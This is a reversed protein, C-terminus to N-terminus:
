KKRGLATVPGHLLRRRKENKGRDFPPNTRIIEINNEDFWNKVEAQTHHTAIPASWWDFMHHETPLLNIHSYVKWYFRTRLRGGTRLFCAINAMFRSFEIQKEIGMRTTRNRILSDIYEYSSRGVGYVHGVILGGVALTGALSAFAKRANGTHMLVGISFIRDFIENKFPLRFLDGRIIHVNHKDRMHDFASHVGWGLDIGIVDAGTQSVQNTFRGNGCGGDLVLMGPGLHNKEFLSKSWFAAKTHEVLGGFYKQEAMPIDPYDEIWGWDKYQIWEFGFREVTKEQLDGLNEGEIEVSAEPLMYPVGKRIPYEKGCSSCKLMGDIIHGDTESQEVTLDLVEKDDPCCIKELLTERM